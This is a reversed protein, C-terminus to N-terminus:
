NTLDGGWDFSVKNSSIVSKVKFHSLVFDKNRALIERVERYFQKSYTVTDSSVGYAEIGMQNAIYLARYLHYRQSVIVIKKADFVEKARIISDYTSIGAHDLFVHVSPVEHNVAYEKMVKVENYDDRRHDGSMIMNPAVQHEYLLIGTKLRDELMASPTQDPRVQCGLVLIAEIDSINQIEDLTLIQEETQHIVYFNVGLIGGIGLFFCCIFSILLWKIWKM